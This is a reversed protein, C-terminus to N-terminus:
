NQRSGHKDAGAYCILPTDGDLYTTGSIDGSYPFANQGWANRLKPKRQLNPAEAIFHIGWHQFSSVNEAVTCTRIM